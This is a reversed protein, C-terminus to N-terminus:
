QNILQKVYQWLDEQSYCEYAICSKDKTDKIKDFETTSVLKWPNSHWLVTAIYKGDFTMGQYIRNWTNDLKAHAMFEKRKM